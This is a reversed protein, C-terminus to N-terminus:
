RVERTRRSFEGTVPRPRARPIVAEGTGREPSYRLRELDAPDVRLLRGVRLAPLEGRDILSRVLKHGVGLLAACEAVSLYRGTM